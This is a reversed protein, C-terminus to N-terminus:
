NYINKRHGVRIVLILLKGKDIELIIRYDGVRLSYLPEGVLRKVHAEPRITIRELTAIIREQIGRDLKALQKKANDSFVVEYM